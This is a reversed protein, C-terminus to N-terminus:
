ISQYKRTGFSRAIVKNQTKKANLPTAEPFVWLRVAAFDLVLALRVAEFDFDFDFDRM